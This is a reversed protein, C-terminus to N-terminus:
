TCGVTRIQIGVIIFPREFERIEWSTDTVNTLSPVKMRDPIITTNMDKDRMGEQM